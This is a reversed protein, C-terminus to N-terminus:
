LNLMHRLDDVNKVRLWDVDSNRLLQIAIGILHQPYVRDGSPVPDTNNDRVTRATDNLWEHQDRTIKINISVLKEKQAPQNTPTPISAVDHHQEVPSSPESEPQSRIGSFQSLKMGGMKSNKTM